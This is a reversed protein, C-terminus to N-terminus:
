LHRRSVEAVRWRNDSGIAVYQMSGAYIFVSMALAWTIGYGKAGLLMGFGIGLVIYGAM